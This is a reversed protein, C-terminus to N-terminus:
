QNFNNSQSSNSAICFTRKGVKINIDYESPLDKREFFCIIPNPNTIKAIVTRDKAVVEIQDIETLFNIQSWAFSPHTRILMKRLNQLRITLFDIEKFYDLQIAKGEVFSHENVYDFNEPSNTSRDTLCKGSEAVFEAGEEAFFGDELIIEQAAYNITAGNKIIAPYGKGGLTIKFATLEPYNGPPKEFNVFKFEKYVDCFSRNRSDHIVVAGCDNTSSGNKNPGGTILSNYDSDLSFGFSAGTNWPEELGTYMSPLWQFGGNNRNYVAGGLMYEFNGYANNYCPVDYEQSVTGTISIPEGHQPQFACNKGALSVFDSVSIHNNPDIWLKAWAAYGLNEKWEGDADKYQIRSDLSQNYYAGRYSYLLSQDVLDFGKGGLFAHSYDNGDVPTHVTHELGWDNPQNLNRNYVRIEGNGVDPVGVALLDNELDINYGLRTGAGGEITHNLGWSDTLGGQNRYLIKIWDYGSVVAWDGWITVKRGYNAVNTSSAISNVIGSWGSVPQKFIYAREFAGVIVYEGHIDVSQGFKNNYTDAAQLAAVVHWIGVNNRELIFASGVGNDRVAGVVAYKDYVAVSTGFNEGQVPPSNYVFQEVPGMTGSQTITVVQPSGQVEEGDGDYGRIRVAGYRSGPNNNSTVFLSVLGVASNSISPNMTSTINFFDNNEFGSDKEVTWHMVDQGPNTLTIYAPQANADLAIDYAPPVPSTIELFPFDDSVEIHKVEYDYFPLTRACSTDLEQGTYGHTDNWTELVLDYEGEDIFEYKITHVQYFLDFPFVQNASGDIPPIVNAGHYLTWRINTPYHESAPVGPDGEPWISAEFVQTSNTGLRIPELPYFGADIFHPAEEVNITIEGHGYGGSLSSAELGVKYIGAEAFSITWPEIASGSGTTFTQYTGPIGVQHMYWTGWFDPNGGYVTASLTTEQCGPYPPSTPASYNLQVTLDWPVLNIQKATLATYEQEDVMGTVQASVVYEGWGFYQHDFTTWNLNEETRSESTGDGYDIEFLYPGEMNSVSVDFNYYFSTEHWDVIGALPTSSPDFLLHRIIETHGQANEVILKIPYNTNYEFAIGAPNQESSTRGNGFDWYWSNILGESLDFFDVKIENDTRIETPLISYTFDAEPVVLNNVTVNKEVTHTTNPNDNIIITHSVPWIGPAYYYHDVDDPSDSSLVPTGDGFNWIYQSINAATSRDKFRITREENGLQTASFDVPEAVTEFVHNQDPATHAAPDPLWNNNAQRIPIYSPLDLVHHDALDTGDIILTNEGAILQGDIITFDWETRDLSVTIFDRVNDNISLEVDTMSESTFVKVYLNDNTLIDLDQPAPQFLYSTGSWEWSRSYIAPAQPDKRIEVKKIFPRFNDIILETPTVISSNFVTNKVTTVKAYLNYKGDPYRAVTDENCIAMQRNGHGFDDLIHIRTFFDSFYYDDYPYGISTTYAYPDIGTRTTSGHQAGSLNAINVSNNNPPNAPAVTTPYLESELRANHSVKSEVWPGKILQYKSNSTGWVGVEEDTEYEKKIFLDINDVNMVANSYTSCTVAGQMQYRVRLSIASNGSFEVINSENIYQENNIKLSKADITVDYNTNVHTVVDLPDKDNHVNDHGQPVIADCIDKFYYLHVHIGVTGNSISNGIIGIPANEAVVSTVDYPIGMYTVTGGDANWDGIAIGTSLNIIAFKDDDFGNMRKLVLNGRKMGEPPVKQSEFIHGYGFSHRRNTLDGETFIYKYGLEGCIKFVVAHNLSLIHNEIRKDEEFLGFDM